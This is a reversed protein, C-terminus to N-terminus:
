NEKVQFNIKPPPPMRHAHLTGHVTMADWHQVKANPLAAAILEPCM